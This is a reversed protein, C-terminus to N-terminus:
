CAAAYPKHVCSKQSLSPLVNDSARPFIKTSPFGHKHYPICRVCVCDPSLCSDKAARDTASSIRGTSWAHVARHEHAVSFFPSCSSKKTVDGTWILRLIGLGTSCLDWQAHAILSFPAGRDKKGVSNQIAAVIVVAAFTWVARRVALLSLLVAWHNLIASKFGSGAPAYTWM